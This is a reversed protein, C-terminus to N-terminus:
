QIEFEAGACPTFLGTGYEAVGYEGIFKQIEPSTLFNILNNALEINVKPCKEPSVAIVSYVNLLIAGKDVLPVLDLKGKYALFTGMDTLTYANKESAMLLTPGMGRGAEIYWAGSKRVMEYDFGAARWVEKEKAHTGSEDGRSVFSGAKTEILNRFAEEPSLGKVNAPDELPGVLLFHSYAFPIRNVGYGDAVFKEERAKDHTVIVDVDCRKGYEFAIGTGAYLIDLELKYQKEFMPELHEWLGTDCLSTTTALRVREVPPLLPTRAASTTCGVVFLSMVVGLMLFQKSISPKTM